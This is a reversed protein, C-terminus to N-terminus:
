KKLCSKMEDFAVSKYVSDKPPMKLFNTEWSIAMSRQATPPHSGFLTTWFQEKRYESKSVEKKHQEELKKLSSDLARPNYGAKYVNYFAARDAELEDFRSFGLLSEGIAAVPKKEYERMLKELANEVEEPSKFKRDGTMWFMQRTVMKGTHAFADHGIEHALVAALEDETTILELLGRTVYIRGGGATYADPSREDMVIFKYQKKPAVSFTGLYTGLQSIYDSTFKDNFSDSSIEAAVIDALWNEAEGKFINDGGIPKPSFLTISKRHEPPIWNPNPANGSSITQGLAISHFASLLVIFSLSINKIRFMILDKISKLKAVQVFELIDLIQLNLRQSV